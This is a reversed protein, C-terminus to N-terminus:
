NNQGKKAKRIESYMVVALLLQSILGCWLGIRGLVNDRMNEVFLLIGFFVTLVVFLVFLFRLYKLRNM